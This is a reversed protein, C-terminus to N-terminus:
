KRTLEYSSKEGDIDFTVHLKGNPLLRIQEPTQSKHYPYTFLEPKESYAYSQFHLTDGVWHVDNFLYRWNESDAHFLTFQGKKDKVIELQTVNKENQWKGVYKALDQHAPIAPAAIFEDPKFATEKSRDKPEYMACLPVIKTVKLYTFTLSEDDFDLPQELKMVRGVIGVINLKQDYGPSTLRITQTGKDVAYHSTEVDIKVQPNECNFSHLLVQDDARFEVINAIGNKLPFMAWIGVLAKKDVPAPSAPPAPPRACGSVLAALLVANVLKFM